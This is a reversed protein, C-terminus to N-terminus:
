ENLKNNQSLSETNKTWNEMKKKKKWKGKAEVTLHTGPNM